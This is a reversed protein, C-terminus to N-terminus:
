VQMVSKELMSITNRDIYVTFFSCNTFRINHPDAIFERFFMRIFGGHSVALVKKGSYKSVLYKETNIVRSRLHDITEAGPVDDLKESLINTMRFGYRKEIEELTLNEAAGLSRDRLATLIIVKDIALEKSLIMASQYSRRMGSHLIMDYEEAKFKEAISQVQYRGTENLDSDIDGQWTRSLNGETEGHRLLTLLLAEKMM